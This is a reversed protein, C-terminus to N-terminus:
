RGAIGFRFSYGIGVFHDVAAASLGVGAHLDLQQRPRIKYATGFHLLHRPGGAQPFDGAYEIFADWPKTLQRDVLFTSEGVVRHSGNQTPAYISLMGAATWNASLPRSWPLQLSPDYGHSSIGHAGTPFSLSVVAALEFGGPASHLQQKIGAALDGFGSLSGPPNVSDRYYDPATFRLETSPGIGVRILTEPFDLTRHGQDGTDLLGNEAQFVGNPVTASSDTVAPRDTAIAAPASGADPAQASATPLVGGGILLALWVAGCRLVFCQAKSPSPRPGNM